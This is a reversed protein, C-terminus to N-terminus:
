LESNKLLVLIRPGDSKRSSQLPAARKLFDGLPHMDLMDEEIAEEIAGFDKLHDALPIPQDLHLSITAGGELTGGTSVVRLEDM